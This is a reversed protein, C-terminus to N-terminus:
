WWALSANTRLDDVVDGRSLGVSLANGNRRRRAAVIDPSFFSDYKPGHRWIKLVGIRSLHYFAADFRVVLSPQGDAWRLICLATSPGGKTPRGAFRAKKRLRKTGRDGRKVRLILFM